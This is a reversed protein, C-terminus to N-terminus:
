SILINYGLKPYCQSFTSNFESANNEFKRIVNKVEEIFISSSIKSSNQSMIITFFHFPNIKLIRKTISQLRSSNKYLPNLLVKFYMVKNFFESM